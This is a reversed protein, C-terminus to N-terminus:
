ASHGEQGFLSGVMRQNSRFPRRTLGHIAAMVRRIDALLFAARVPRGGKVAGKVKDAAGKVHERDM